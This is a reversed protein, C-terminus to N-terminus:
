TGSGGYRRAMVFMGVGLALPVAAQGIANMTEPISGSAVGSFAIGGGAVLMVTAGFALALALGTRRGGEGHDPVPAGHAARDDRFRELAEQSQFRRTELEELCHPCTRQGPDQIRGACHQCAEVADM